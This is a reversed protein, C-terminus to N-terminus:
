VPEAEPAWPLPVVKPQEVKLSDIQARVRDEFTSVGATGLAAKTWEIVQAETVGELASFSDADPPALKVDGQTFGRHPGDEGSVDFCVTVVVGNLTGTNLAEIQRVKWTINAM